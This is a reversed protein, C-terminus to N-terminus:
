RSAGSEDRSPFVLEFMDTLRYGGFKLFLGGALFFVVSSQVVNDLLNYGAVLGVGITLGSSLWFQYPIRPSVQLRTAVIVMSFAQALVSSVGRALAAGLLGHSGSLVAFLVVLTSIRLLQVQVWYNPRQCAIILNGNLITLSDVGLFVVLVLFINVADVYRDGFLSLIPRAFLLFFLTIGSGMLILQRAVKLYLAHLKDWRNLAVLKTFGPFVGTLFFSVLLLFTESLQLIVFYVGLQSLTFQRLVLIQDFKMHLLNLMSAGQVGISYRWFDSPLFWRWGRFLPGLQKRLHYLAVAAVLALLPFYSLFIVQATKQRFVDSHALLFYGYILCAGVTVGRTLLQALSVRLLGKLTALAAFHLLPLPAVAFLLLGLPPTVNPGFFFTLVGPFAVLFILLLAVVGLALLFSSWLFWTRKRGSLESTFRIAVTAGGFYLIGSVIGLYIGIISYFGVAEPSVRALILIILYGFPASLISILFSGSIGRSIERDLGREAHKDVPSVVSGNATAASVRAQTM